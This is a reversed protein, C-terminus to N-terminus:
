EDKVEMHIGKVWHYWENVREKAEIHIPDKSWKDVAKKNEWTSITIEIDDKVQQRYTVVGSIGRCQELRAGIRPM